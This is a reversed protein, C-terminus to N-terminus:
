RRVMAPSMAVMNPAALDQNGGVVLPEEVIQLVLELCLHPVEGPDDTEIRGVPRTEGVVLDAVFHDLRTPSRALRRGVLHTLGLFFPKEADTPIEPDAHPDPRQLPGIRVFAALQGGRKGAQELISLERRRQHRPLM